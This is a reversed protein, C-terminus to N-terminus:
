VDTTLLATCTVRYCDRLVHVGSSESVDRGSPPPGHPLSHTRPIAKVCQSCLIIDVCEIDGKSEVHTMKTMKSEIIHYKDM